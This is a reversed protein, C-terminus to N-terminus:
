DYRVATVGAVNPLVKRMEEKLRNLVDWNPQGDARPIDLEIISTHRQQQRDEHEKVFSAGYHQLFEGYYQFQPHMCSLIKQANLMKADIPHTHRIASVYQAATMTYENETPSVQRCTQVPQANGAQANKMRHHTLARTLALFPSTAGAEHAMRGIRTDTIPVSKFLEVEEEMRMQMTKSQTGQALRFLEPALQQLVMEAAKHKAAKKSVGTGFGAAKGQLMVTVEHCEGTSM